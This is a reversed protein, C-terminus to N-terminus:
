RGNTAKTEVDGSEPVDFFREFLSGNFLMYDGNVVIDRKRNDAEHFTIQFTNNGTREYLGRIAGSLRVGEQMAQQPDKFGFSVGRENWVILVVIRNESTNEYYWTTNELNYPGPNDVYSQEGMGILMLKAEEAMLLSPDLELYKKLDAIAKEDDKINYYVSGRFFYNIPTPNDGQLETDLHELLARDQASINQRSAKGTAPVYTSACGATLVAVMLILFIKKMKVRWIFYIANLARWRKIFGM